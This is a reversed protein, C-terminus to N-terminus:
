GMIEENEEEADQRLGGAIRVGWRWGMKMLAGGAMSVLDATFYQPVMQM